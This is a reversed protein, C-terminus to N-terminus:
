EAGPVAKIDSGDEGKVVGTVDGSRTVDAAAWSGWLLGILVLTGFRDRARM